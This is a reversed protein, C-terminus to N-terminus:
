EGVEVMGPANGQVFHPLAFKLPQEGTCGNTFCSCVRDPETAAPPKGAIPAHLQCIFGDVHKRFHLHRGPELDQVLGRFFFRCNSCRCSGDTGGFGGGDDSQARAARPRGCGQVARVEAGADVIGGSM